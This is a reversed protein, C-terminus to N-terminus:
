WELQTFIVRLNTTKNIITPLCTVPIPDTLSASTIQQQFLINTVHKSRLYDGSSVMIKKSTEEYCYTLPPQTDYCSSMMMTLIKLLLIYASVKIACPTVWWQTRCREDIFCTLPLKKQWMWPGLKSIVTNQMQSRWLKYTTAEKTVDMTGTQQDSHEVDKIEVPHSHHRRRDCGYDWNASWQTRCKHDWCTLPSKKQWMWPGLKSMVTNQMKSRWLKHTTAEEIVGMTETQEGSHEADAIEVAHLHHSRRDCGHDSNASQQTRCRHDGCVTLSPKKRQRIWPRLKRVVTNQIQSRWLRHTTAKRDYM